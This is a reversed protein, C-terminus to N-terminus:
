GSEETRDVIRDSVEHSGIEAEPGLERDIVQDSLTM